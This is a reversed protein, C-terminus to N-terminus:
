SSMGSRRAPTREVGRRDASSRDVGALLRETWASGLWALLCSALLCARGAATGLLFALPDAGALWGMAVGVLPLAALLHSTARSSATESGVAQAVEARATLDGAVGEAFTSLPAGTRESLRWAMALDALGGLGPAASERVLAEPVDGGLRALAAVTGLAPVEDALTDMAQVPMRGAQVQGALGRVARAVGAEATTRTVDRRRRRMSRAVSAVVVGGAVVVLVGSGLIRASVALAVASGGFWALRALRRRLRPRAQRRVPWRARGTGVWCWAAVGALSAAVLATM